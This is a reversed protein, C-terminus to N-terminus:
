LHRHFWQATLEAVREVDHTSKTSGSKVGFMHGAHDIMVLETRSRDSAEFLKEAEVPKVTVDVQGHVLLLPVNLRQVAKVLDYKEKNAELDRLMEIGYRLRTKM